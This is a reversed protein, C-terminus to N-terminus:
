SARSDRRSREPGLHWSDDADGPQALSTPVRECVLTSGRGPPENRVLRFILDTTADDFEPPTMSPRRDPAPALGASGEHSESRGVGERRFAAFIRRAKEEALQSSEEESPDLQGGTTTRRAAADREDSRTMEPTVRLACLTSPFSSAPDVAPSLFAARPLSLSELAEFQPLAALPLTRTSYAGLSLHRVQPAIADYPATHASVASASAPRTRTALHGFMDNLAGLTPPGRNADFAAVADPDAAHASVLSQHVSFFHLTDLTPLASPSLLDHLTSGTCIVAKLHLLRLRPLHFPPSPVIRSEFLWLKRLNTGHSLANLQLDKAGAVFLEEVDPCASLVREILKGVDAYLWDGGYVSTEEIDLQGIRLTRVARSWERPRHDLLQSFHSASRPTDLHIHRRLELSAWRACDRDLRSYGVLTRYRESSSSYGPPPLTFSFIRLVIERPLEPFPAVHELAHGSTTVRNFWSSTSASPGTSSPALTESLLSNLFGGGLRWLADM